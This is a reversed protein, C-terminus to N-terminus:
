GQDGGSHEDGIGSMKEFKSESKDHADQLKKYRDRASKGTIQLALNPNANCKEAAQNFKASVEGYAAIHAHVAAIEKVLILDDQLNFKMRRGTRSKAPTRPSTVIHERVDSIEEDRADSPIATSDTDMPGDTLELAVLPSPPVQSAM